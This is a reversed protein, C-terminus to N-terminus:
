SCRLRGRSETEPNKVYSTMKAELHDQKSQSDEDDTGDYSVEDIYTLRFLIDHVQRLSYNTYLAINSETTRKGETELVHIAHRVDDM